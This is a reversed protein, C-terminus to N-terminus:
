GVGRACGRRGRGEGFYRSGQGCGRRWLWHSPVVSKFTVTGDIQVDAQRPEGMFLQMRDVPEMSVRLNNMAVKGDGEISITGGISPAVALAVEVPDLPTAGIEIPIRAFYAHGDSSGMTTLEYSGPTVNQFRFEGNSWNIRANQSQWTRRVPDKPQLVIQLNRDAPLPGVHGQVTVGTAPPMRFDIGAINASAPAEVKTAGAPDPVGPYFQPAYTLMPLDM